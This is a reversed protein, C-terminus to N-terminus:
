NYDIYLIFIPPLVVHMYRPLHQLVGINGGGWEKLERFPLFLHFEKKAGRFPSRSGCSFSFTDNEDLGEM